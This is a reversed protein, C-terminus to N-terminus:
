RSGNDLEDLQKQLEAAQQKMRRTEEGYQQIVEPSGYVCAGERRRIAELLQNLLSTLERRRDSVPPGYLLPIPERNSEIVAQLSDM